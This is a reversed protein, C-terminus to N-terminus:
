FCFICAKMTHWSPGIRYILLAHVNLVTAKGVQLVRTLKSDRYPIHGGARKPELLANVVNGLVSLGKNIMKGEDAREGM